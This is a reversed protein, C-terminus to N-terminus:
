WCTGGSVVTVVYQYRYHTKEPFGKDRFKSNIFDKHELFSYIKYFGDHKNIVIIVSNILACIDHSM